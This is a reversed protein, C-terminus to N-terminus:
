ESPNSRFASGSRTGRRLGLNGADLLLVSGTGRVALLM